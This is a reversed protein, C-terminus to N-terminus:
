ESRCIDTVYLSVNSKNRRPAWAEGFSGNVMGCYSEYFRNCCPPNVFLYPLWIDSAFLINVTDAYYLEM